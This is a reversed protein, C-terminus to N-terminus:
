NARGPIILGKAGLDVLPEPIPEIAVRTLTLSVLVGEGPSLQVGPFCDRPVKMLWKGDATGLNYDPGPLGDLGVVTLQICSAQSQILTRTQQTM